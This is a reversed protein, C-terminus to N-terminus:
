AAGTYSAFPRAWEDAYRKKYFDELRTGFVWREEKVNEWHGPAFYEVAQIAMSAADLIDDDNDKSYPNFLDMQAFLGIMDRRFFARGDRVFSGLTRNIKDAKATNGISIPIFAPWIIAGLEKERERLKVEILPQLATQLGYEIAVRRPRYLFIKDVIITAVKEPLEKVRYAEHFVIKNKIKIPVGAAVIGTHDSRYGVTPAPDIALFNDFVGDREEDYSDTGKGMFLKYKAPSKQIVEYIPYPPQFIKNEGAVEENMMQTSFTAPGMKRKIRALDKLSFYSYIPRNNEIAKRVVFNDGFHREEMIIKYIDRQHYRTGTMKEIATLEKIAQVHQWWNLVKEIQSPTTVSKENIIDDYFHYDYHHGVVTADIGWVEVQNEQPITAERQDRYITLEDATVKQWGKFNKGPDPIIDPFLERLVPTAFLNRISVLEKRVLKSTRSWLGVRRFPNQLILQVIAIKIWTTKMHLRPYLLLWDEDSQLFRAMQVHLKPDLRAKGTSGRAKSLGLIESGLFYLDTLCKWRLYLKNALTEDGKTDILIEEWKRKEELSLEPM